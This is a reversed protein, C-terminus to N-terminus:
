GWQAKGVKSKTRHWKECVGGGRRTTGVSNTLFDGLPKSVDIEAPMSTMLGFVVPNELNDFLSLIVMM